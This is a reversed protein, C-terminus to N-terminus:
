CLFRYAVLHAFGVAHVNIIQELLELGAPRQRYYETISPKYPGGHGAQDIVGHASQVRGLRSLYPLYYYRWSYRQRIYGGFM